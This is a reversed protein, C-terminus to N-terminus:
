KPADKFLEPHHRKVRDPIHKHKPNHAESTTQVFSNGYCGPGCWTSQPHDIEEGRNGGGCECCHGNAWFRTDPNEAGYHGYRDCADASEGYYDCWSAEDGYNLPGSYKCQKLGTKLAILTPEFAADNKLAEESLTSHRSNDKTLNTASVGLAALTFGKM